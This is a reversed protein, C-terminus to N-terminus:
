GNLLLHGRYEMPYVHKEKSGEEAWRERAAGPLSKVPHPCHALDPTWRVQTAWCRLDEQYEQCTHM